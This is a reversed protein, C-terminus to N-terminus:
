FGASYNVKGFYQEYDAIESDAGCCTITCGGSHVVAAYGEQVCLEVYTFQPKIYKKM